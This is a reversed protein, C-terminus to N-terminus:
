AGKEMINNEAADVARENSFEYWFTVREEFKQAVSTNCNRIPLSAWVISSNQLLQQCSCLLLHLDHVSEGVGGGGIALPKDRLPAATLPFNRHHLAWIEAM